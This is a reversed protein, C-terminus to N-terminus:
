GDLRVDRRLLCSSTFTTDDLREERGPERTAIM